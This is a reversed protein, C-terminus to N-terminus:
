EWVCTDHGILDILAEGVLRSAGYTAIHFTTDAPHPWGMEVVLVDNRQALQAIRDAAGPHRQLDKGVAVVLAGQAPEVTPTVGAAFPGWPAPGVAMNPTTDLEVWALPAGANSAFLQRASQSVEFASAVVGATLGPIEGNAGHEPVVIEARERALEAGLQRVHAAATEVVASPLTGDSVAADLAEVIETLQQDTNRTGLCLFEAGAAVAAVAAAPIGRDASAGAMDLADTVIVGDFGLESRLLDTLIRRSFTAPNHPDLAPVVIHSTMITRAGAAIAARFPVLERERVTEEDADIVPLAHHSDASTDGHGPFHKACSAVGTAEIGRTWAAVHEAVAHPDTGFSRVGIVPNLPNSNVDADPALTLSVGAERLEWGVQAGVRETLGADVLRGLVANGPFPSGQAQYLRSVDGGEEDIAIIAHPNAAYIAATLETLQQPSVVNMGFICVGGLGDRLRRELWSPLETGVFGPMLLALSM